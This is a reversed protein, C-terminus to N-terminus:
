SLQPAYVARRTGNADTIIQLDSANRTQHEIGDADKVVYIERGMTDTLIHLNKPRQVESLPKISQRAVAFFSM